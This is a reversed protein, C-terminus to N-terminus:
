ENYEKLKWFVVNVNNITLNYLEKPFNTIFNNNEHSQRKNDKKWAIKTLIRTKLGHLWSINKIKLLVRATKKKLCEVFFM